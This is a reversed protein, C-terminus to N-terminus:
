YLIKLLIPSLCRMGTQYRIKSPRGVNKKERKICWMSNCMMKGTHVIDRHLKGCLSTDQFLHHSSTEKKLERWFSCCSVLCFLPHLLCFHVWLIVFTCFHVWLLAFVVVAQAVTYKQSLNHYQVNKCCSTGTYMKRCITSRYMKAVAQPQTSKQLLKHKHVNEIM